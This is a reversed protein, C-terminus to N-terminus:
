MIINSAKKNKGTATKISVAFIKHITEAKEMLASNSGGSTECLAAFKLYEIVKGSSYYGDELCQIFRNKGIASSATNAALNIVMSDRFIMDALTAHGKQRIFAAYRYMDIAFESALENLARKDNSKKSSYNSSTTEKKSESTTETTNATNESSNEQFDAAPVNAEDFLPEDNLLEDNM